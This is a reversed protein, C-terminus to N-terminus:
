AVLRSNTLTDPVLAISYSFFTNLLNFLKLQMVLQFEPDRAITVAYKERLFSFQPSSAGSEIVALLFRIFNMLPPIERNQDEYMAKRCSEYLRKAFPTRGGGQALYLFVARACFLDAEKPDGMQSWKVIMEAFKEPSKGLIFHLQAAPYKSCSFLREAFFDHM